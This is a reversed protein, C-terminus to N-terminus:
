GLNKLELNVGDWVAYTFYSIWDGTNIYRSNGVVKDIPLHRHGFVFYDVQLQNQKRKCYQLLWENEDGLYVEEKLGNAYRSKYSFYSALKIGIDPHVWRYMWKCIPNTFIKKMRKYGFDGPGLGDGHGIYFQKDLLTHLVPKFYVEAGLESSFYDNLWLDHNGAFIHLRIGQDSLEALKGLTRVFGKPVARKYEFWFDFLDGIIYLDSADAKIENLWSCFKKERELSSEANPVGLHLDSVFYVKKM